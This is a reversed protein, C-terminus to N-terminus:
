EAMGPPEAGDSASGGGAPFAATHERTEHYTGAPASGWEIEGVAGAGSLQRDAQWMSVSGSEQYDARLGPGDTPRGRSADAIAASRSVEGSGGRHSPDARCDDSDTSGAVGPSRAPAPDDIPSLPSGGTKATRSGSVVEEQLTLRREAGRSAVSEDDAHTSTGLPASAVVTAASRSEGLEAGLDGSLSRGADIESDAACGPSGDEAQASAEYSDRRRRWDVVRLETGGATARVLACAWQGGDGRAGENGPGCPRPLVEGSGRPTATARGTVRRYRYGCVCNASLGPRLRM